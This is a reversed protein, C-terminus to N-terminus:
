SRRRRFRRVLGSGALGLGLLALTGPEPVPTGDGIWGSDASTPGIRQVHAATHFSGAGGGGVSMYNFSNATIGICQGRPDLTTIITVGTPFCGLASRFERPDIGSSQLGTDQQM